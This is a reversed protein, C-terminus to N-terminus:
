RRYVAFPKYSRIASCWGFIHKILICVPRTNCAMIIKYTCVCGGGVGKLSHATNLYHHYPYICRKNGQYVCCLVCVAHSIFNWWSCSILLLAACARRRRLHLYLSCMFSEYNVCCCVKIVLKTFWVLYSHKSPENGIYSSYLILKLLCLVYWLARTLSSYKSTMMM